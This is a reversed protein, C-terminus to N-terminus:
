IEAPSVINKERCDAIVQKPIMRIAIVILMPVIIVDDIHGIVPIFDPIIDIPSLVYAVAFKLLRRALGPTRKDTLARQYVKVEAKFNEKVSKLKNFM